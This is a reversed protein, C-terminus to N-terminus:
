LYCANFSSAEEPGDTMLNEGAAKLAGTLGTFRGVRVMMLLMWAAM